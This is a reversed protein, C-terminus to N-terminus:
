APRRGRAAGRRGARAAHRQDARRHRARLRRRHRAEALHPRALPVRRRPAHPRPTSGSTTPSTASCGRQPAPSRTASPAASPTSTPRRRRGAPPARPPPPDVLLEYPSGSWFPGRDRRRRRRRARRARRDAVEAEITTCLICGGDFRAFAREEDLIEGPVFPMGLLQGHPHSSRRAPRAATTSSPRRTASTRPAPTSTSRPRQLPPWSAAPTATTSTPGLGGDHDPSFVFCRTSAAPRRGAVHVPGLHRVAFGTTATSRPTAPQARHADVLQRRQASRDRAGPPTSKRTARASRARGAAPRGRGPPRPARLRDPARGARRRDHGVAREAPEPAASEDTADLRRGRRRSRRTPSATSRCTSPREDGDFPDRGSAEVLPARAVLGAAARWRTSSRRAHGLPDVVAAAPGGGAETLEVFQGDADAPGALRPAVGVARGPRGDDIACTSRGDGRATPRRARVGRRRLARGARAARRRRRLVGAAGGDAGPQLVHQLRRLRARVTRRAPRDAM